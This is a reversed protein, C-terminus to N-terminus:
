FTIKKYQRRPLNELIKEKEDDPINDFLKIVNIM